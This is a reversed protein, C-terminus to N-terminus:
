AASEDLERGLMSDRLRQLDERVLDAGLFRAFGLSGAAEKGSSFARDFFREGGIEIAGYEGVTRIQECTLEAFKESELLRIVQGLSARTLNRALEHLQSRVQEVDTQGSKLSSM